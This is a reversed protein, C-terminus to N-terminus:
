ASKRLKLALYLNASFLAYVALEDIMRPDSNQTEIETEVAFVYNAPQWPEREYLSLIKEGKKTMLQFRDKLPYIVFKDSGGQQRWLQVETDHHNQDHIISGVDVGSKFIAYELIPHKIFGSVAKLEIDHQHVTVNLHAATPATAGSSVYLGAGVNEGDRTLDFSLREGFSRIILSM